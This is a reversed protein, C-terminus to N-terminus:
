YEIPRFEFSEYCVGDQLNNIPFYKRFSNEKTFIDYRDKITFSNKINNEELIDIKHM